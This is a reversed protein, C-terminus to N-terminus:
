LEWVEFTYVDYPRDYRWDVLVVRNPPWPAAHEHDMQLEFMEQDAASSHAMEWIVSIPSNCGDTVTFEYLKKM